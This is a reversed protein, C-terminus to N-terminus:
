RPHNAPSQEAPKSQEASVETSRNESFIATGINLSGISAISNVKIHGIYINM